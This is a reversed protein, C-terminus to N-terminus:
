FNIKRWQGEKFHDGYLKKRAMGPQQLYRCYASVVVRVLSWGTMAVIIM